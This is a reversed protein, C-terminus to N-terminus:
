GDLVQSLLRRLTRLRYDGRRPNHYGFRRQDPTLRAYDQAPEFAHGEHWENFSNIFVLFFGRRANRWRRSTQLALSQALTQRIQKESLRRARERDEQRSWNIRPRATPVFQPREHCSGHPVRRPGISDFGPNCNFSFLLRNATAAAADDNWTVPNRVTSYIALGDFGSAAVRKANRSNTLLTVHDFTGRLAARVANTQQRWLQDSTFDEVEQEVGHCDISTPTLTTRFAKFVPGRPGDASRLRLFCDWRRKDGFERVLYLVDEAFRPGRNKAYPELHFMVKIDHAAMVDMVRHIMKTSSADPGWWSLNVAGAGAQVIWRAHRELIKFDSSSYPGLAPVSNTAIDHPPVRDWQQWHKWPATGYWPYYEFIFHRPLDRFQKRLTRGLAAFPFSRSDVLGPSELPRAELGSLTAARAM